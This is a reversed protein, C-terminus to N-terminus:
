RKSWWGPGALLLGAAVLDECAEAARAITLDTRLLIMEFTTPTDDVADIVSRGAQTIAPSAPESRSHVTEPEATGVSVKPL